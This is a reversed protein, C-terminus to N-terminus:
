RSEEVAMAAIRRSSMPFTGADVKHAPGHSLRSDDAPILDRGPLLLAAALAVLLFAARLGGHVAEDALPGVHIYAPLFVLVFAGITFWPLERRRRPQALDVLTTAVLLGATYYTWTAPDLLLRVGIVGLVIVM